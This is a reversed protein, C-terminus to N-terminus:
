SEGLDGPLAARVQETFPSISSPGSAYVASFLRMGDLESYGPPQVVEGLDFRVVYSFRQSKFLQDTSEAYVGDHTGGTIPTTANVDFTLDYAEAQAAFSALSMAAMALM